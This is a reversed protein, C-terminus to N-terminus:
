NYKNIFKGKKFIASTTDCGAWAHGFLLCDKIDTNAAVIEQINWYRSRKGESGKVKRETNFYIDHLIRRYCSILIVLIDTDDCCVATKSYKSYNLAREVIVTDADATGRRVIIDNEILYKSLLTILQDKNDKNQM